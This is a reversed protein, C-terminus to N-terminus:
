LAFHMLVVCFAHSNTPRSKIEMKGFNSAKKERSNSYEVAQRALRVQNM